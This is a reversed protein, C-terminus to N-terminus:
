RGALVQCCLAEVGYLNRHILSVMVYRNFDTVKPKDFPSIPGGQKPLSLM